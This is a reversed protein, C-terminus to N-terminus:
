WLKIEIANTQPSFLLALSLKTNTVLLTELASLLRSHPQYILQPTWGESQEAIRCQSTKAACRLLRLMQWSVTQRDTQKDCEHTTLWALLSWSISISKVGYSVTIDVKKLRFKATM